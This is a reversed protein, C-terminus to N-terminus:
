YGYIYIYIYEGVANGCAVKVDKTHNCTNSGIPDQGCTFISNETGTCQVNSSHVPQVSAPNSSASFSVVDTFGLQSCAVATDLSDWGDSCITGWQMDYYMELFGESISHGGGVLRLAGNTLAVSHLSISLSLICPFISSIYQFYVPFISTRLQTLVVYIAFM